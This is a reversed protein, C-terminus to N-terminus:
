AMLIVILTGWLTLLINAIPYAPTYGLVATPSKSREQVAAMAATMTLSGALTGLLLIPNMRLVYRGFYLGVLLPTLTVLVGGLMIGAGAQQLAPVFAPGAHLGTMAVFAALGLATMLAVAGGPIRGFLPHRTRLRGVLLGALLAGVSAGMAVTMDGISVRALVGLLGGVFVAFGVVVFDTTMTPAIIAGIEREARRVGVDTGVLSLVDGREIVLGFGLPLKEAGRRAVRVYVGRTWEDQGIDALTRGAVTRSTVFVDARRIPIDLLEPDDVEEGKKGIIEIIAKRRGSVALVDGAQVLVNRADNLITRDRRLRLVFFRRDRYRAEAQAVTQGVIAADAPVVYARLDFPRNGSVVGPPAQHIGLEDELAKAEAVLDVGLLRPAAASCFWIAGAAGFVYCLADAIAVHSVLLARTAEDLPLSGIAESATGMAASQTLSGSLLGAAFGADLGLVRAAALATVLGTVTCVLSMLVAQVGGKRLSSLFQPGVSYGIGFLFLLFLFSKAMPSIPVEALQGILLGAFLSGTVPGFSFGGFKIDGFVYGVGIALFVALEPYSELFHAILEM